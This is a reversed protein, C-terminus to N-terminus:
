PVAEGSGTAQEPFEREMAMYFRLKNELHDYAGSLMCALGNVGSRSAVRAYERVDDCHLMTDEIAETIGFLASRLVPEAHIAASQHLQDRLRLFGQEYWHIMGMRRQIDGLVADHAFQGRQETGGATPRYEIPPIADSQRQTLLSVEPTRAVPELRQATKSETPGAAMQPTQSSYASELVVLRQTAAATNEM